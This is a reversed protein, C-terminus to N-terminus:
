YLFIHDMIKKDSYIIDNKKYNKIKGINILKNLTHNNAHKFIDMNKLKYLIEPM